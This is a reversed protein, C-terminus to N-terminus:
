VSERRTFRTLGKPTEARESTCSIRRSLPFPLIAAATQCQKLILQLSRILKKGRCRFGYNIQYFLIFSIKLNLFKRKTREFLFIESRFFFFFSVFANTSFFVILKWSRTLPTTAANRFTVFSSGEGRGGFGILAVQENWEFIILGDANFNLSFVFKGRVHDLKVRTHLQRESTPFQRAIGQSLLLLPPLSAGRTSYIVNLRLNRAIRPKVTAAYVTKIPRNNVCGTAFGTARMRSAGVIGSGNNRYCTPGEIMEPWARNDM